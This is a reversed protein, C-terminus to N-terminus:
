KITNPRIINIPIALTKKVFETVTHIPMPMISPNDIPGYVHMYAALLESTGSAVNGGIVPIKSVLWNVTGFPYLAFSMNMTSDGFNISGAGTITMVSGQIVFQENWFEGRVGKLDVFIADFPLGSVTPDPFKATIWSKLDILALMRSIVTFRNITGNRMTLSIKGALTQFFDSNTDAWLDVAVWMRGLVPSEKRKGSLMFLPAADINAVKGTVHIWDDKERGVIELNIKGRFSDASFKWVRWAGHDYSFDGRINTMPFVGLRGKHVRVFGRVPLPFHTPPTAPSWPMRIFKMVEFDLVQVDADIRLIPHELDAISMQFTLPQGELTSAPMAVVVSHRTFSFTVGQVIMPSRMFGFRVEGKSLVLKGNATLEGRRLSDARLVLKGGIPGSVELDSPDIVLALWLGAEMQHIDIAADRVHIGAGDFGLTGNVTGDGGSTALAIHDIAVSGPSVTIVGRRFEVPAPTGKVTLVLRNAELRLQYKDPPAPSDPNLTGNADLTIGIRGRVATLRRRAEIKLAQMARMGAPFLEAVDADAKFALRYPIRNLGGALELRVAIDSLQSRGLTASGQTATMVGGQYHLAVGLNSVPPLRWDGPLPFAANSLAASFELGERIAALPNTRFKAVTTTFAASGLSMRAASVQSLAASVSRPVERIRDLQARVAAADVSVGSLHITVQPNGGFPDQVQGDGSLIEAGGHNIVLRSLTSVGPSAVFEFSASYGGLRDAGTLDKGSLALQKVSLEANGSASGDDALAFVIKGASEGDAHLVGKATLADLAANWYMIKGSAVQHRPTERGVGGRLHGAIRLGAIPQRVVRADFSVHWVASDWHKRYATMGVRDVVAVGSSDRVTANTIEIRWAVNGLDHLPILLGQVAEAGPRPLPVAALDSASMPVTIDPSDLTLATLPIGHSFLLAHYSITARIRALTVVEDYGGVVHPHDLDIVLHDRLHLHPTAYAIELGTRNKVAVLMADVLRARNLYIGVAAAALVVVTSVLVITALRLIRM